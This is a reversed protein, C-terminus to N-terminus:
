PKTNAFHMPRFPSSCSWVMTDVSPDHSIVCGLWESNKSLKHKVFDDLNYFGSKSAKSFKSMVGVFKALSLIYCSGSFHRVGVNFQSQRSNLREM